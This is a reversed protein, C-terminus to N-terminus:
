GEARSDSLRKALEDRDMVFWLDRGHNSEAVFAALSRSKAIHQSIDGLIAARRNYTALKQIIEGAIRTRLDFFDESLRQVPIVILTASHEFALSVIEVADAGTKLEPGQSPVEFIRVGNLEFSSGTM